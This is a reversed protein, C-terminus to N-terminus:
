QRRVAHVLWEVAGRSGRVPSEIASRPQWGAADLGAEARVVAARVADPETPPRALGLEFMPKVLAILDADAALDLPELPPAAAALALYSLDLTVLQLREPVHPRTLEGLNVGELNVVRRDQRLSGVLQGHGADVAYVRRVGAELLVRTFGGAAAGVDLAIRGEVVVDFAHLASRLKPEGRLPRPRRVAIPAGFPVLSAPNTALRGDVAIRGDAVLRGADELEPHLRALEADLRRLRRRAKRGL